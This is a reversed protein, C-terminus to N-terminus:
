DSHLSTAFGNQIDLSQARCRSSSSGVAPMSPIFQLQLVTGFLFSSLREELPEVFFSM